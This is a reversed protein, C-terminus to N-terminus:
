FSMMVGIEPAFDPAKQTLGFGSNIKLFAHRAFSWQAEGIASLEDSEGELSLVWRWKDNRRKIYDIAFEGGELKPDPDSRDYAMSVRWGLTGWPHGRLSGIGLTMEWKQTGILLKDPQSPLVLEFFSFFEAHDATEPRWRWRLQGEVDGLGSESLRQPVATPDNPAKTFTASTHLAGEVEFALRDSIGYSFFLLSEREVLKGLYDEEGVSGLESAHYEFSGTRTYEYFPYLLKEGPEVYTGFMSTAIGRGRDALYPPLAPVAAEAEPSQARAPAALGMAFASAALWTMAFQLGTRYQPYQHM